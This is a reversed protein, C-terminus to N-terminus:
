IGFGYWGVNKIISPRSENTLIIIRKSSDSLINEKPINLKQSIDLALEQALPSLKEFPGKAEDLDIGLKGLESELLLVDKPDTMDPYGKPFKYSISHLFQEIVDM